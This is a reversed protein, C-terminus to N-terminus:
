PSVVQDEARASATPERDELVITTAERFDVNLSGRRRGILCCNKDRWIASALILEQDALRAVFCGRRLLCQRQWRDDSQIKGRGPILIREVGLCGNNGAVCGADTRKRGCVVITVAIQIEEYPSTNEGARVRDGHGRM